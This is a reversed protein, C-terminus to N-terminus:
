MAIDPSASLIWSTKSGLVLIVHMSIKLFIRYFWFWFGDFGDWHRTSWGTKGYWDSQDLGDPYDM